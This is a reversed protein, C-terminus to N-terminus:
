ADPDLGLDAIKILRVEEELDLSRCALLYIRTSVPLGVLAAADAGGLAEAVPGRYIGTSFFPIMAAFGGFYAVLGRWNWRGYIGGPNFIERVSYHGRRVVYFDVLNIATWPTFLYLLITLFQGFRAAFHESAGLAFACSAALLAVLTLLRHLARPRLPRISDAVSLLTLSASYLVITTITVLGLLLGLLFLSGSGPLMSDAATKLAASLELNPFLAATATGLLM